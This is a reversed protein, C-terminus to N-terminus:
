AYIALRKSQRYPGFSGLESEGAALGPGEDWDLGLWRLDEILQTEYRVESRELDTDEIRLLCQGGTRRAFLWNYLATRANGV